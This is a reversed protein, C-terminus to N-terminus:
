SLENRVLAMRDALISRRARAAVAVRRRLKDVARLVIARHVGAAARRRERVGAAARWRELVGAAARPRELVTSPSSSGISRSLM